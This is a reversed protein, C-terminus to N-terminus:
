QGTGNSSTSLALKIGERLDMVQFHEALQNLDQGAAALHADLSAVRQESPLELLPQLATQAAAIDGARVHAAV